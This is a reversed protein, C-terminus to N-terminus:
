QLWIMILYAPMSVSLSDQLKPDAQVKCSLQASEGQVYQAILSHSEKSFFTKCKPCLM